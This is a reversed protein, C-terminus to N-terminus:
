NVSSTPMGRTRSIVGVTCRVIHPFQMLNEAANFITSTFSSDVPLADACFVRQNPNTYLLHYTQAGPGARM